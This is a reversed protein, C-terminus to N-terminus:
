IQQQDVQEQTSEERIQTDMESQIKRFGDMVKALLDPRSEVTKYLEMTM